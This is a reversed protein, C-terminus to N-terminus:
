KQWEQQVMQLLNNLLWYLVMAAPFPYFLLLFVVAMLLLGQRKRRLALMDAHPDRFRLGAAASVLAMLWPLANFSDGLFPVALPLRSIADPYALDKIWLFGAGAFQPMEALANFIAILVPLLIFLGLMPKLTYFPTIGRTKHAAMIRTHAEEGRYEQRIGTLVPALAAKHASAQRQFRATALSVPLLVLKVLIAFLILAGAWGIGALRELFVIAAEAARALIALPGWLHAYRLSDLALDLEGLRPKSVLVAPVDAERASSELRIRPGSTSITMGNGHIALVQFRGVAAFWDGPELELTNDGRLEMLEDGHIRYYRLGNLYHALGHFRRPEIITLQAALPQGLDIPEGTALSIHLLAHAANRSDAAQATPQTDHDSGGAARAASAALVFLAMVLLITLRANAVCGM